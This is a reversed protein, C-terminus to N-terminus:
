AELGNITKRVFYRTFKANPKIRNSRIYTKGNLVAKQEKIVRSTIELGLFLRIFVSQKDTVSKIHDVVHYELQDFIARIEKKDFQGGFDETVETILDERTIIKVSDSKRM